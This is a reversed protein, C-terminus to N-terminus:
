HSTYTDCQIMQLYHVVSADRYYIRSSQPLYIKLNKSNNKGIHQQYNKCRHEDSKNISFWEQM